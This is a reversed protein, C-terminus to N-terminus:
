IIKYLLIEHDVLDFAKRLDLYVTGTINGNDIDKHWSYILITL